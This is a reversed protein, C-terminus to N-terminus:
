YFLAVRRNRADSELSQNPNLPKSESASRVILQRPSVGLAILANAVNNARELGLSHNFSESGVEDTFGEVLVIEDPNSILYEAHPTLVDNTSTPLEASDFSFFVLHEIRSKQSSSQINNQKREITVEPQSSCGGLMAVLGIGLILHRKRM